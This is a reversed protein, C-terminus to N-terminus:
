RGLRNGLEDSKQNNVGGSVGGGGRIDRAEGNKVERDQQSLKGIKVRANEDSTKKTRRKNMYM